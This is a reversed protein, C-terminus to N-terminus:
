ICIEDHQQGSEDVRETSVLSQIIQGSSVEGAESESEARMRM